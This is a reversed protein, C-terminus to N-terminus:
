NTPLSVDNVSSTYRTVTANFFSRRKLASKVEPFFLIQATPPPASLGPNYSAQGFFAQVLDTSHAPANDHQLQDAKETM